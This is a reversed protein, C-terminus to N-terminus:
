LVWWTSVNFSHYLPVTKLDLNFISVPTMSQIPWIPCTLQSHTTKYEGLQRTSRAVRKLQNTKRQIVLTSARIWFRNSGRMAFQFANM